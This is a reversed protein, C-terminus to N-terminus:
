LGMGEKTAQMDIVKMKGTEVIKFWKNKYKGFLVDNERKLDEFMKFDKEDKEDIIFVVKEDTM